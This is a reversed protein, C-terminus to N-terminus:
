QKRETNKRNESLPLMVTFETIGDSSRATIIGGHVRGPYSQHHAAFQFCSMVSGDDMTYFPARVGFPNDLGCIVCMRSNRQKCIVKM